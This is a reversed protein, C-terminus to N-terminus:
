GRREHLASELDREVVFVVIEEGTRTSLDTHLSVVKLGTRECVLRELAPRSSEMLRLRMGKMLQAGGPEGALHKEARTLVGSLRVFIVDDFIRTKAEEPGRGLHEKAFLVMLRSIEAELQGKSRDM